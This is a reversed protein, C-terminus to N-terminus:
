DNWKFGRSDFFVSFRSTFAVKRARFNPNFTNVRKSINPEVTSRSNKHLGRSLAM